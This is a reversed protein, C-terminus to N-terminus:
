DDEDEDSGDDFEDEDEDEYDLDAELATLEQETPYWWRVNQRGRGERAEEEEMSTRCFPCRYDHLLVNVKCPQCFVYQCGRNSCSAPPRKVPDMGQACLECTEVKVETTECTISSSTPKNALKEEIRRLAVQLERVREQHEKNLEGRFGPTSSMRDRHAKELSQLGRLLQERRAARVRPIGRSLRMRDQEEGPPQVAILREYDDCADAKWVYARLKQRVDEYPDGTKMELRANQIKIMLEQYRAAEENSEDFRSQLNRCIRDKSYHQEESPIDLDETERKTKKCAEMDIICNRFDTLAEDYANDSKRKAEQLADSAQQLTQQFERLHKRHTTELGAREPASWVWQRHLDNVDQNIGLLLTQAEAKHERIDRLLETEKETPFEQDALHAIFEDYTDIRYKQRRMLELDFHYKGTHDGLSSKMKALKRKMLIEVIHHSKWSKESYEAIRALTDQRCEQGWCVANRKRDERYNKLTALDEHLAALARNLPGDLDM